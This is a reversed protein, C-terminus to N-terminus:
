DGGIETLMRDSEAQMASGAKREMAKERQTIFRDGKGGRGNDIIYALDHNTIGRGHDGEFDVYQVASGLGEYIRGATVSGALVGTISHTEETIRRMDETVSRSGAQVIRRIGDRGLKDFVQEAAEFGMTRVKM